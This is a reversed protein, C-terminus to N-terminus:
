GTTEAIRLLMRLQADRPYKGHRAEIHERISACGTAPVREDRLRALATKPVPDTRPVTLPQAAV